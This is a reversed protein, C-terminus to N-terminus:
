TKQCLIGRQPDAMPPLDGEWLVNTFLSDVSSRSYVTRRERTDPEGFYWTSFIRGGVKCMRVLESYIHRAVELTGTHSFVSGAIVLDAIGSQVPYVAEKPSLKGDPWYHGNRVDIHIFRFNPMDEFAMKCFEICPKIIDVGIYNIRHGYFGMAYRGNGCGIDIVTDDQQWANIKSLRGVVEVGLDYILERKGGPICGASIKKSVEQWEAKTRM